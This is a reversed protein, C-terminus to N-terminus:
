GRVDLTEGPLRVALGDLQESLVIQCGLRSFRTLGAALDLMEEEEEEPPPLRAHDAEAVIVHCTSCALNGGCAGEIDIGERHALALLTMGAEAEATHRERGDASVFTVRIM